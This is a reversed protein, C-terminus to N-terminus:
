EEPGETRAVVIAAVRALNEERDCAAMARTTLLSDDEDEEEEEEEDDDVEEDDDDTVRHVCVFYEGASIM